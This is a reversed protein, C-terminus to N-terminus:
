RGRKARRKRRASADRHDDDPEVSYAMLELKSRRELQGHSNTKESNEHVIEGPIDPVHISETSTTGRDSKQKLSVRFARKHQGLVPYVEDWTKLESTSENLTSGSAVDTTTTHRRVIRPVPSACYSILGVEKSQGGLIELHETYCSLDRNGVRITETRMPILSVTQGIAEGLCGQRLVQPQAPFRRGGVEVTVEVRLSVRDPRAEEITTVNDTTSTEVQKGQDDYNETVIQVKRWSGAPFRAWPHTQGLVSKDAGSASAAFGALVGICFASVSPRWLRQL